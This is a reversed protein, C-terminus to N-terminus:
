NVESSTARKRQKVMWNEMKKETVWVARVLMELSLGIIGAVGEYLRSAPQPLDEVKRYHQYTQGPRVIKPGGDGEAIAKQPKMTAHVAKVVELRETHEVEKELQEAPRKSDVPFMKFMESRFGGDDNPSLVSENIFSDQYWDLYQDLETDSMAFIDKEKVHTSQIQTRDSLASSHSKLVQHWADWDMSTAAPESSTKPHRSLKDLPYMLKICVVLCAVLQAEPINRVDLNASGDSPLALSYGVYGALRVTAHYLELPLALEKLLRFLLLPSNLKPWTVGYQKALITANRLVYHHLREPSLVANPDLLSHYTPALRDRMTVPLHKIARKYPMQADIIWRLFDGLTTPLRLTVVALYCLALCDILNPTPKFMKEYSDPDLSEVEAETDSDNSSYVQYQSQSEYSQTNGIKKELQVIRLSWLDHVVTELEVPLGRKYILFWVQHRLILQASKLYLDFGQQGKYDTHLTLGLALVQRTKPEDLISLLCSM